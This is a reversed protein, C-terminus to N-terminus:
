RWMKVPGYLGTHFLAGWDWFALKKTKPVPLIPGAGNCDEQLTVGQGDRGLAAAQVRLCNGLRRLSGTSERPRYTRSYLSHPAKKSFFSPGPTGGSRALFIPNATCLKLFLFPRSLNHIAPQLQGSTVQYWTVITKEHHSFNITM